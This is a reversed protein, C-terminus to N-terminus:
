ITISRRAKCNVCRGSLSRGWSSKDERRLKEAGTELHRFDHECYEQEIALKEKDHWDMLDHYAQMYQANWRPFNKLLRKFRGDTKRDLNLLAEEKSM